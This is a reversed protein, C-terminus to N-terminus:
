DKSVILLSQGVRQEPLVGKDHSRIYRHLRRLRRRQANLTNSCASAMLMPFVCTLFCSTLGVARSSHKRKQPPPRLNVDYGHDRLLLDLASTTTNEDDVVLIRAPM